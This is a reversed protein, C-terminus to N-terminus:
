FLVKGSSRLRIYRMVDEQMNSKIITREIPNEGLLDLERLIREDLGQLAPAWEGALFIPAYHLLSPFEEEQLLSLINSEDMGVLGPNFLVETAIICEKGLELVTGDELTIEHLPGDLNEIRELEKEFDLAVYCYDLVLKQCFFRNHRATFDYGKECLLKIFLNVITDFGINVYCKIMGFGNMRLCCWISTFHGSIIFGYRAGGLEVRGFVFLEDECATYMKIDYVDPLSATLPPVYDDYDFFEEAENQGLALVYRYACVISKCKRLVKRVAPQRVVFYYLAEFYRRQDKGGQLWTLEWSEDKELADNGFVMDEGQKSASVLPIVFFPKKLSVSVKLVGQEAYLLLADDGSM